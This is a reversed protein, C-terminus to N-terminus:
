YGIFVDTHIRRAGAQRLARKLSGVMAPTGSLYTHRSKADPVAALLQEGTLRQAEVWTWGKPLKVPKEASVVTVPQVGAKALVDAYALDDPPQDRLGARCGAERRM